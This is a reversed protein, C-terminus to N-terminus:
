KHWSIMEASTYASDVLRLTDAAFTGGWALYLGTSIRRCVRLFWIENEAFRVLGNLDAPADTWNVVPLRYTRM